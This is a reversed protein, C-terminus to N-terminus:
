QGTACTTTRDVKAVNTRVRFGENVVEDTLTARRGSRVRIWGFPHQLGDSSCRTHFGVNIPRCYPLGAVLVSIDPRLQLTELLCWATSALWKVLGVIGLESSRERVLKSVRGLPSELLVPARRRIDIRFRQQRNAGYTWTGASGKLRGSSISTVTM